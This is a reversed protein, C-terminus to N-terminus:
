RASSHMTETHANKFDLLYRDDGHIMELTESERDAKAYPGDFLQWSAYDVSKGNITLPKGYEATLIAGDLSTFTVSPTPQLSYELPLATVANQFAQYSDFDDASAIQVIYGNKLEYSVYSESGGVLAEFGSKPNSGASFYGGLGKKMSDTWDVPKWVGPALPRYAIYTPGGQAFIWGSDDEIRHKLDRSFYTHILPFRTGAPIDYLAILAARHQEVQEYPSGGELKDELDYDVKSRSILDTVTDWDTNFYMTGEFPSSYPQIGFMTNSIGSPKDEHWILSWTQQQIPQLLGGQSSGLIFDHHVYSYKYVPITSKGDIEFATAGANRLRWRTRKLERHVYPNERDHAIRLLIPPPTYGSL